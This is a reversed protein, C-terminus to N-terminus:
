EYRLAQAPDHRAARLAPLLGSAISLVAAIVIAVLLVPVDTSFVDFNSRTVSQTLRDVAANGLEGLVAAIVAGM